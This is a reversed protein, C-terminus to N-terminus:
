PYDVTKIKHECVHAKSTEAVEKFPPPYTHGRMRKIVELVLKALDAIGNEERNIARFAGKLQNNLM